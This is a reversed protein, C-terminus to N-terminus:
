RLTFDVRSPRGKASPDPPKSGPELVFIRSAEVKGSSALYDKVSTARAFALQRLDEDTVQINELILSEMESPPIDKAFGLANRPKAFSEKKYAKALYTEYEKEEVVVEDVSAPADSKKALSALKQAKVKRELRLRKLGERDADGSTRGIAELKLAPRKDLAQALADLKKKAAEDPTERGDAFEVSSFEQGSGGLLKGLLTFPATIAKGILNGLVKLIVKGIRFKPDDLSGEIPLDLDILGDKDKLLSVALRVPLKTASPSEIKEGFDFQDVLFRNQAQLKRNQLKYAVEMSLVGRAIGYGAYKGSYGTFPPLDIDKFSAKVDAYAAASLPNVSGSIQLPSHNALSGRVDLQAVTGERSDLGTVRGTLNSLTAAYNPEIFHDAFVIKGGSVVLTDIKIPVKDGAPPPPPPPSPAASSTSPVPSDAAPTSAAEATEEGPSEAEASPAAPPTGLVRALSTTGDKEIAVDCAIGSLALRSIELTVPNFGARMGQASFSEWKLFDLNTARDLVLFNAVLADGQYTFSAKGDQGQGFRLTGGASVTGRALKVNFDQVVYGQIPPLPIERVDAKLDAFVPDIGVPGKVSAIGKGDVGFSASLGAKSGRATSVNELAVRLKTLKYRAPQRVALDHIKATYGDLAAKGLTVTWPPGPPTGAASEASPVLLRTFSPTGDRDRAVALIGGASSIEGVSATRRALDVSTGTMSISPAQFFAEKEGREVLRPSRIEASLGSLTTNGREGAEFRYRTKVDLIGDEVEFRVAKEYAPAFRKLVVGALSLEGEAVAPEISVTGSNKVSEGAETKASLEVSAAKGPATSLGKVSITLDRVETLLPRGFSDDEYHVTGREVGVEAVEVLFPRAPPAKPPAPEAKGPARRAPALFAELIPHGSAPDRRVWIEPAVAKLSRIQAKRGFVDVSGLAVDFRECNAAPRGGFVAALKHLSVTGSLVLRPTAGPPQLFSLSLRTDLRGSTLRSNVTGSAYALYHPLDLDTLNIDVTTEHSNSFPKTQGRLAFPAGNIRAEFVPQTRIEVKSPINSLFPIGLRVGRIEHTTKMPQDDFDVSGGEVQINNLSFRQPKADKPAPRAAEDLLDQVNYTGDAKRVLAISPKTLLIESAVPAWRFLSVAELNVVLREFSFFRGAGGREKVELGELTTSLRFPNIALKKLTVPRHLSESLRRELVGRLFAPLALFGVIAWIALVGAVLVLVKRALPRSVKFAVM